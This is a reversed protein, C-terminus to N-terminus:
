ILKKDIKDIIKKDNLFDSLNDFAFDAKKECGENLKRKILIKVKNDNKENFVDKDASIIVNAKDFIENLNKPFIMERVRYGCKSLFFYTSQLAIADENLSYFFVKFKHKEDNDLDLLWNNFISALNTEQAKACGFIEYPYDIYVFDNKSKKDDFELIDNFVDSSEDIEDPDITEDFDRAYYKVLQKNINRVVHNIEIGIKIEKM